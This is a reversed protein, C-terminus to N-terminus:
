IMGKWGWRYASLGRDIEVGWGWLVPVQTGLPEVGGGGGGGAALLSVAAHGIYAARSLSDLAHLHLTLYTPFSTNSPLIQVPVQWRINTSQARSFTEPVHIMLVAM